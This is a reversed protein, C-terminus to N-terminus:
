GPPWGMARGGLLHLHIHYVHQGGDRGVNFVLRFGRENLHFQEALQKAVLHLHGVLLRDEEGIDSIRSIHKRPIILIHVPAQPHIDHFAIALDDEYIIHAPLERAVIRCFLCDSM